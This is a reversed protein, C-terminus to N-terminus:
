GQNVKRRRLLGLGALGSLVMWVTPPVPTAVMMAASETVPALFGGDGLAYTGGGLYQNGALLPDYYLNFGNGDINTVKGDDLIAGLLLGAYFATGSNDANGDLLTIVQDLIDLTGFAFNNLYGQRSNDLDAGALYLDHATGYGLDAFILSSQSTEWEQNMISRNIFSGGIMWGDDPGGIMVGTATNELDKTSSQIIPDSIYTGSNVFGGAFTLTAKSLDDGVGYTKVTNGSYNTVLDSFYVYSSLDMRAGTHGAD